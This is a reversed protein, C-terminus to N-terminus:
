VPISPSNLNIFSRDFNGPEMTVITQSNQNVVQNSPAVVVNSNNSSKERGAINEVSMRNLEGGTIPATQRQLISQRPMMLQENDTAGPTSPLINPGTPQGRAEIQKAISENSYDKSTGTLGREEMGKALAENSLDQQQNEGAVQTEEGKKKKFWNMPNLASLKDAAWAVAAVLAVIGAVVAIVPLALAIFEIIVPVMAIAMKAFNVAGTVLGKGFDKIGGLSQKIGKGLQGLEQGFLKFQDYAAGVTQSLPGQVRENPKMGAKEKREALIKQDKNLNEQDAILRERRDLDITDGKKAQKLEKALEKERFQLEKEQKLISQKELKEQAFTKIELQMNKEDVYTNIGRERLIDREKTLESVKEEHIRKREEKETKKKEAIEFLKDIGDGLDKSFSKLDIGLKNQLTDITKFAQENDEEKNSQLLQVVQKLESEIPLFEKVTAQTLSTVKGTVAQLISKGLEVIQQSSINQKQSEAVQKIAQTVEVNYKPLTQKVEVVNKQMAEQKAQMKDIKKVFTSGLAGVLKNSDDLFDSDAM